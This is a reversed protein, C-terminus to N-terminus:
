NACKVFSSPKPPWDAPIASGPPRLNFAGETDAGTFDAGDLIAGAFDAHRLCADRLDAGRLDAGRLSADSLDVGSLNAGSLDAGQLWAGALSSTGLDVGRLEAGRLDTTTTPTKSAPPARTLESQAGARSGLDDIRGHWAFLVLMGVAIVLASAAIAQGQKWVESLLAASAAGVLLV